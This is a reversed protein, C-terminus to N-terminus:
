RSELPAEPQLLTSTAIRNWLNILGVALILDGVGKEDFADRVRRYLEDSVGHAGIMTVADTLELVLRERDTFFESHHWAAVALVKRLAVGAELLDASHADVCYSCGNVSSARLFILNKTVPDLSREVYGDLEIVQRYGTGSTKGIRIREM